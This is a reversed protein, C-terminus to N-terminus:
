TTWFFPSTEEHLKLQDEGIKIYREHLGLIGYEADDVGEIVRM